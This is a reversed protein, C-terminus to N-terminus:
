MNLLQDKKDWLKSSFRKGAHNWSEAFMSLNHDLWCICIVFFDKVGMPIEYFYCLIMHFLPSCM